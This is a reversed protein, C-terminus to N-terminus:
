NGKCSVGPTVPADALTTCFTEASKSSETGATNVGTVQYFFTVNANLGGDNYHGCPSGVVSPCGSPLTGTLGTQFKAENGASTGRYLNYRANAANLTWYVDISHTGAQAGVPIVPGLALGLLVIALIYRKM